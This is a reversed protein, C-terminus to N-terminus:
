GELMKKIKEIAGDTQKRMEQKLSDIGKEIDRLHSNLNNMAEFVKFVKHDDKIDDEVEIEAVFDCENILTRWGRFHGSKLNEIKYTKGKKILMGAFLEVRGMFSDKYIIIKKM